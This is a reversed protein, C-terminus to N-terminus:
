RPDARLATPTPDTGFECRVLRVFDQMKSSTSALRFLLRQTFPLLKSSAYRYAEVRRLRPDIADIVALDDVTWQLSVGSAGKLRSNAAQAAASNMIDFIVVGREFSQTLSRFIRQVEESPLYELVGELLAVVPRDRPIGALWSPDSISGERMEYGPGITFFRRRLAIVEPFDVDYWGVGPAPSIRLIRSDLGCGLNLVVASPFRALCDRTWDDITRARVVLLTRAGKAKIQEFDLNLSRVIEDAKWDKLISRRSRFDNAKAFLTIALTIQAGSLM